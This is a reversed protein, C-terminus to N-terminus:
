ICAVTTIPLSAALFTNYRPALINAVKKASIKDDFTLYICSGSGTMAAHGYQNLKSFIDNAQPYLKCIVKELDNEKKEILWNSTISEPKIDALDLQLNSFIEKTPAHFEPKVIVFYLQPIDIPTIIEGIGTVLANKGQIFFPVDAGLELGLKILEEQSLGLEWMYNLAVLVTAANSSGGGLGAGSPIVKKIRINAGYRSKSYDQLLQAARYSLDKKYYWAQQHEILSIKANTTKQIEVRDCLDILCFVSKLLHYGDDRKGVIKLGLNLKAPSLISHFQYYM